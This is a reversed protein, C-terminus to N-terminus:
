SRSSREFLWALWAIGLLQGFTPNSIGPATALRSIPYTGFVNRLRQDTNADVGSTSLRASGESRAARVTARRVGARSLVDRFDRLLGPPIRGRVVLVQGDRVSLLFLERARAIWLLAIAGFALLLAFSMREGYRRTAAAM